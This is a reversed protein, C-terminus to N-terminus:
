PRQFLRACVQNGRDGTDASLDVFHALDLQAQHFACDCHRRSHDGFAGQPREAEESQAANFFRRRDDSKFLGLVANMGTPNAVNRLDELAAGFRSISLQDDGGM